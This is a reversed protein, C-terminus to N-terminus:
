RRVNPSPRRNTRPPGAPKAPQGAGTGTVAPSPDAPQAPEFLEPRHEGAGTKQARVQGRRSLLAALSEDAEVPRPKGRWLLLWRRLNETAKSWEARDLYIRRLGVDLVFFVVAFKLLAEWLDLPQFTKVRDRLYSNAVGPMETVAPLLRGGGTEALRRLLNLNPQTAAFEPSYNVSAGLPQTARVQGGEVEILNLLYAGVERTPFRAEYRGPGTQELRM